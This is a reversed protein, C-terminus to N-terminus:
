LLTTIALGSFAKGASPLREPSARTVVRLLYMMNFMVM